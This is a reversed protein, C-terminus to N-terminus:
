PRQGAPQVLQHYLSALRRTRAVPHHRSAIAEGAAQVLRTQLDSNELLRALADRLAPVDGADVLLATENDTAIEPIGGVRTAVAPVGAAMAELLANPSGETRSSLVAINAIGYFPEATPQLGTFCLQQGFQLEHALAEITAREPGDGVIFLRISDRQPLSAAARVLACHDKERSLRGVILLVKADAPIKWVTRTQRAVDPQRSAQGWDPRIANHIVEIRDGPVGQRIIEQRFPQSVTLVQQAGRLSWRDLRNYLRTKWSTWTYGHHFAVWPYRAPLGAMRALFHSKVAHTQLVDPRLNDALERLKRLVTRDFAGQEPIRYLPIGHQEVARTFTNHEENRVFTAISTEVGEATALSAFQLLNKAPGTISTAEIIALLRLPAAASSPESAKPSASMGTDYRSSLSFGSVLM